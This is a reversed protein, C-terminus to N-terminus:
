NSKYANKQLQQRAKKLTEDKKCFAFRAYWAERERSFFTSTPIGIVGYEHALMRCFQWDYPEGNDKEHGTPPVLPHSAPLRALLFYGGNSPLPELGAAVLGEELIKRKNHFNNRLWDYYNKKGEFPKDAEVLALSLAVQMPTSACFQICPLLDHIPQVFHSPGIIWGVQWGTASFTKGCSSLTITRDWMDPLRAFHYHGKASADGEEIADYVSFKYVEDSVIILNPYKRAISAIKDYEEKTFVKGTPNHPSNLLLIRTDKTITAELSDFDVAWPDQSTVRPNDAGGLRIYKHIALPQIAEVQKMYLDFCPDFMVVEDGPQLLTTLTLYLAQSAGVTIAVEGYPEVERKLHHSYREALLEVLKPHGAPRTYQHTDTGSFIAEQLSNLMFSPPQWDPFGIPLIFAFINIM